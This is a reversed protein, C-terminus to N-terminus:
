RRLAVPLSWSCARHSRWQLRFAVLSLAFAGYPVGARRSHANVEPWERSASRGPAPIWPM